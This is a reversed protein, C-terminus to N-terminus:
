VLSLRVHKCIFTLCEYVDSEAGTAYTILLRRQTSGAKAPRAGMVALCSTIWLVPLVYHLAVGGSSSRAMALPSRFVSNRTFRELPERSISASLSVSLCVSPHDCHEAGRSPCFPKSYSVYSFLSRAIFHIVYKKNNIIQLKHHLAHSVYTYITCHSSSGDNV